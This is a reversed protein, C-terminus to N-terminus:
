EFNVEQIKIPMFEGKDILLYERPLTDCVWVDCKAYEKMDYNKILDIKHNSISTQTSHGVVYTIEPFGYECLCSPRVWTLPQTPRIGTYDSMKDSRFGFMECPEINNIDEFCTLEPFKKQMDEWWRQTIGAHSFVINDIQLLWQTNELFMEKNNYVWNSSYSPSCEAWYYKCAEMDHNGRLLYVKDSHQNKFDVLDIFNQNQDEISIGERSTFYDGLFIFLDTNNIEKDVVEKWVDRGHIDGFCIIRLDQLNKM